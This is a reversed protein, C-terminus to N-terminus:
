LNNFISNIDNPQLAWRFAPHVEWDYGFDVFTNSLYRNEEFDKRQIIGESSMKRATIFNIKYLFHALDRATSNNGNTFVFRHHQKIDNIKSQLEATTYTFSDETVKQKKSPKMGFILKEILPLESKYENIVDQIRGQSYEEFITEIHKTKIIHSKSQYAQRAALSCLKVLDRPRRRIMSMLVRRVPVDSWKGKGQFKSEFIRELHFDL